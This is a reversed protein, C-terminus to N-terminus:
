LWAERFYAEGMIFAHAGPSLTTSASRAERCQLATLLCCIIILSFSITTFLQAHLIWVFSVLTRILLGRSAATAYHSASFPIKSIPPQPLRYASIFHSPKIVPLHHARFIAINHRRTLIAGSFSRLRYIIFSRRECHQLTLTAASILLLKIHEYGQYQYRRSFSILFLAAFRRNVDIIDDILFDAIWYAM